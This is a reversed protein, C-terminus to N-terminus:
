EDGADDTEDNEKNLSNEKNVVETIVKDLRRAVTSIGEMLEVNAPDGPDEYNFLDVLGMITSLPGRVEHSQIYAIDMLVTNQAKIRELHKKKEKALQRNSKISRMMKRVIVVMIILLLVIGSIYETREVQKKYSAIQLDKDKRELVAKAELDAMKIKSATSFISSKILEYLKYNLLANQYDGENMYADSLLKYCQYLADKNDIKKSIEISRQLYDIAKKNSALKSSILAKNHSLLGSTDRAINLYMEGMNGLNIALGNEDGLEEYIAIAKNGYYLAKVLNNEESTDACYVGAICGLDRAVESKYNIKRALVLAKQYYDLARQYDRLGEYVVGINGMNRVIDEGSKLRVCISLALSDYELAKEYKETNAYINGINGLTKERSNQDNLEEFLTLAKFYYELANPNETKAEYNAGLSNYAKAMGRKWQLDESMKLGQKGYYIGSDPNYRDFLKSITDLLCAQNTDQLPKQALLLSDLYARGQRQSFAAVPLFIIFLFLVLQRMGM